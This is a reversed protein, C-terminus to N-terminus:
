LREAVASEGPAGDSPLVPLDGSPVPEVQESPGEIAPPLGAASNALGFAGAATALALTALLTALVAATFARNALWTTALWPRM